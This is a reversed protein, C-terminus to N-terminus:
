VRVVYQILDLVVRPYSPRSRPCKTDNKPTPSPYLLFFTELHVFAMYEVICEKEKIIEMGTQWGSGNM